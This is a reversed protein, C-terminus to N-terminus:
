PSLQASKSAKSRFLFHRGAMDFSTNEFAKKSSTKLWATRKGVLQSRKPVIEM